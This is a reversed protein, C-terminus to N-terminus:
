RSYITQSLLGECFKHVIKTNPNSYLKKEKLLIFYFLLVIFCFGMDNFSLELEYKNVVLM